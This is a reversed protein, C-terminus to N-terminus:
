LFNNSLCNVSTLNSRHTSGQALQILWPFARVFRHVLTACPVRGLSPWCILAPLVSDEWGTASRGSRDIPVCDSFRSPTPASLASFFLPPPHTPSRGAPPLTSSILSQNWYLPDIYVSLIPTACEGICRCSIYRKALPTKHLCM